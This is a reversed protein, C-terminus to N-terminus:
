QTTRWRSHPGRENREVLGLRQLVRLHYQVAQRTVGLAAALGTVSVQQDGMVELIAPRELRDERRPAGM